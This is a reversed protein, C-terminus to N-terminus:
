RSLYGARSIRSDVSGGPGEHSFYHHIVMSVSHASASTRLDANYALAHLDYHARIRNVLCLVSTRMQHLTLQGPAATENGCPAPAATAGGPLLLGATLVAAALLSAFM